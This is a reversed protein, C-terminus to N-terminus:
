APQVGVPVLLAPLTVFQIVSSKIKNKIGFSKRGAHHVGVPDLLAPLTVVPHCLPIAWKEKLKIGSRNEHM